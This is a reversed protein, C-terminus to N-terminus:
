LGLKLKFPGEEVHSLMPHIRFAEIGTDNMTYRFDKSMNQEYKISVGDLNCLMSNALHYTELVSFCACIAKQLTTARGLGPSFDFEGRRDRWSSQDVPAPSYWVIPSACYKTTPEHFCVQERSSHIRGEMKFRFTYGKHLANPCRKPRMGQIDILACTFALPRESRM